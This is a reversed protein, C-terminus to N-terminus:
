DAPNLVGESFVNSHKAHPGSPPLAGPTATKTDAVQGGSHALLPAMMAFVLLVVWVMSLVLKAM